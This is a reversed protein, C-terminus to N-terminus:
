VCVYIWEKESEKGTYTIVSYQASDGTSYLLNKNVTQIYLHTYTLKVEGLSQAGGGRIKFLIEKLFTTMEFEEEARKLHLDEAM